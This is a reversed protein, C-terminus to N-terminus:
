RKENDRATQKMGSRGVAAGAQKRFDIVKDEAIERIEFKGQQRILKHIQHNVNRRTQIRGNRSSSREGSYSPM